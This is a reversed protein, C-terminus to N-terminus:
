PRPAIELVTIRDDPALGLRVDFSKQGNGARYRCVRDDGLEKREFLQMQDPVGLDRLMAAFRKPAKPFSGARVYAFQAPSLGERAAAALLARLREGIAPKRHPWAPPPPPPSGAPEIAPTPNVPAPTQCGM